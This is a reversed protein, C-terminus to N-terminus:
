PDAAPPDVFLWQKAVLKEIFVGRKSELKEPIYLRLILSTESGSNQNIADALQAAVESDARAYGYLFEICGPVNLQFCLWQSPSNFEHSFITQNVNFRSSFHFFNIQNRYVFSEM